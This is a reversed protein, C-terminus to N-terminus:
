IHILSLVLIRYHYVIDNEVGTDLVSYENTLDVNNADVTFITEYQENIRKRQIEYSRIRASREVTSWNIRVNCEEKAIQFDVLGDQLFTNPNASAFTFFGYGPVPEVSTLDTELQEPLEPSSEVKTWGEINEIYGIRIDETINQRLSSNEDWALSIQPDDLGNLQDFSWFETDSVSALSNDTELTPYKSAFYEAKYINFNSTETFALPRLLGNKGIPFRFRTYGEKIAPGDIHSDDNADFYVSGPKFNILNNNRTRFHGNIFDLDGYVSLNRNGLFVAGNSNDIDLNFTKFEGFLNVFQENEGILRLVGTGESEIRAHNELNGELNFEGHNEFETNQNVFDGKVIVTADDDIDLTYYNCLDLTQSLLMDQSLLFCSIIILYKM